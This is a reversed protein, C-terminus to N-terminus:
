QAAIESASISHEALLRQFESASLVKGSQVRKRKRRLTWFAKLAHWHASVVIIVGRGLSEQGTFEGALGRGARSARWHAAYRKLTYWPLAFFLRAPYTKAVTYLRNREVYFAKLPSARGASGSYDHEVWAEPAYLCRWGALRGRLGVDSDECYLFYDADFGGIAELMARRYLAACGSPLLVEGPRDFEAAPRLHGRQKATGDPYIALGASDLKEPDASFVIRSACMGCRPDSDATEVLAALWGPRPRADDNLTLIFEAESAAAGQNIAAGFGVNQRNSLIRVRPRSAFEAALGRGSNDVILVEFDDFTQGDLADLCRDLPAGAHLTPVVVAARPASM